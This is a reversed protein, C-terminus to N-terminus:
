AAKRLRSMVARSSGSAVESPLCAFVRASLNRIRVLSPPDESRSPPPSPPICHVLHLRLLYFDSPPPSDISPVASLLLNLVAALSTSLLPLAVPPPRLHEFLPLASRRFATLWGSKTLLRIWRRGSSVSQPRRPRLADQGAWIQPSCFTSFKRWAPNALFMMEQGM